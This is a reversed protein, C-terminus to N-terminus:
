SDVTVVYPAGTYYAIEEEFLKVVKYPNNLM